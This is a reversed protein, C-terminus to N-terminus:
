INIELGKSYFAKSLLHYFLNVEFILSNSANRLVSLIDMEFDVLEFLDILDSEHFRVPIKLEILINLVVQM